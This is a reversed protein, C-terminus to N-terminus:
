LNPLSLLRQEWTGLCTASKHYKDVLCRQAVNVDNKVEAVVQDAKKKNSNEQKTVDKKEETIANDVKAKLEAAALTYSEFFVRRLVTLRAPEPESGGTGTIAACMARFSTDDAAGPVYNCSFAFGAYTNWGNTKAILLESDLVGLEKARQEFVAVSDLASM